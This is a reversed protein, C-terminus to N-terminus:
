SVNEFYSHNSCKKESDCCYLIFQYSGFHFRATITITPMCLNMKAGGNTVLTVVHGTFYSVACVMRDYRQIFLLWCRFHYGTVRHEPELKDANIISWVLSGLVMRGRDAVARTSEIM